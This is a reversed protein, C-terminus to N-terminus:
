GRNTLSSSYRNASSKDLIVEVIDEKNDRTFIVKTTPLEIIKFWGTAPDIMTLCMFDLITHDKAKITYPGILDICVTRWPVTEAIKPPLKRVEEQTVQRKPLLQLINRVQTHPIAYRALVDCSSSDGRPSQGRSTSPLSSVM